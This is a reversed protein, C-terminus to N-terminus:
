VLSTFYNWSLSLRMHSRGDLVLSTRDTAAPTISAIKGPREAARLPGQDLSVM